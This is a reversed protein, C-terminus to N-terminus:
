QARKEMLEHIVWADNVIIKPRRGIWITLLPSNYYKSWEEFAAWPKPLPIQLQNGILPLRFPGPPLKQRLILVRAYSVVISGFAVTTALYILSLNMGRIDMHGQANTILWGLM